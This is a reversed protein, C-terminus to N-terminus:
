ILFTLFLSYICSFRVKVYPQNNILYMEFAINAGYDIMPIKDLVNSECNLAIMLANITIDHASLAYFRLNNYWYCAPKTSNNNILDNFCDWKAKLKSLVDSLVAGCRLRKLERDTGFYDAIGYRVFIVTM